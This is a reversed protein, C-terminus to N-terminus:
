LIFPLILTFIGHFSLLFIGILIDFIGIAFHRKWYPIAQKHINSFVVKIIGTLLALVGFVRSVSVDKAFPHFLSYWGMTIFIIGALLFAVWSKSDKKILTIHHQM